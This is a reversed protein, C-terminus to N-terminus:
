RHLERAKSGRAGFGTGFSTAPSTFNQSSYLFFECEIKIASGPEAMSNGVPLIVGKLREDRRQADTTSARM